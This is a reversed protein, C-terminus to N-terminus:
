DILWERLEEAHDEEDSLIDEVLKRTAPDTDGIQKIIQRYREIVICEAALDSSIMTELSCSDDYDVFSRRALSDPSFDPQGGLAVIHRALRDAHLSEERAYGLFEEAIKPAVLGDSTFYHRKYRLECVLETALSDNLLEIIADRRADVSPLEAGRDAGRM